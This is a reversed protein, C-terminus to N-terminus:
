DADRARKCMELRQAELRLLTLKEAQAQQRAEESALAKMLAKAAVAVAAAQAGRAISCCACRRMRPSAGGGRAFRPPRCRPLLAWVPQTRHGGNVGGFFFFFHVLFRVETSLRPM